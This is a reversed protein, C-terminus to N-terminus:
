SGPHVSIEELGQKENKQTYIWYYLQQIMYYNKKKKSKQPVVMVTKGLLQVMQCEWWCLGLNWNRWM